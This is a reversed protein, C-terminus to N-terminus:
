TIANTSPIKSICSSCYNGRDRLLIFPLLILLDLIWGANQGIGLSAAFSLPAFYLYTVLDYILLNLFEPFQAAVASIGKSRDILVWSVLCIQLVTLTILWTRFQRTVFM